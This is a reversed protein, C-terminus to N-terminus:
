SRDIFLAAISRVAKMGLPEDFAEQIRKAGLGSASGLTVGFPNIAQM